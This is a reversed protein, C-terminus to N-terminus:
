PRIQSQPKFAPSNTRHPPSNTRPTAPQGFPGTFDNNTGTKILTKGGIQHFDGSNPDYVISSAGIIYGGPNTLCANGILELIVRPLGNSLTKTYVARDGTLRNTQNFDIVVNSLATIRNYNTSTLRPLEFHLIDCHVQLDPYNVVAHGIYSGSALKFNAELKDGDIEITSPAASPANTAALSNARSTENMANTTLTSAASADAAAVASNTEREARSM